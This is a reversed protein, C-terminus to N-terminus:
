CAFPVPILAWRTWEKKKLSHVSSGAAAAAAAAAASAAGPLSPAAVSSGKEHTMQASAQRPGTVTLKNQTLSSLPLSLSLFCPRNETTGKKLIEHGKKKGASTERQVAERKKASPLLGVVVGYWVEM